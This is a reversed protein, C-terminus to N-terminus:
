PCSTISTIWNSILTVAADDNVYSAIKPMRGHKGNADDPLATMRLVVVSQSPMGPTIILSTSVGQNGKEPTVGCTHTDKFAVDRRLDISFFNPDDPRHCFGCNAHLYSRAREEVTGATGTPSVLAAKYPKAPTADFLYMDQLMDIQNTGNVVRNFQATEPGLTSGGTATHCTMCDNRSPLHWSVTRQGTNFVDEVRDDPVITADTQAEDWQYSYGVWNAADFHVFLRTELLKGDFLFSKVMVTGVPFVWKGDDAVDLCESANAACNKIHIKAGIPLALGRRKDAGDSWLPSNVEYPIVSAAMKTPDTPNVCGTQSLKAAPQDMAAPPVCTQAIIPGGDIAGGGGSGGGDMDASGGNGSNGGKGGAGPGQGGGSGCGIDPAMLVLLSLHILLFVATSTSQRRGRAAHAV